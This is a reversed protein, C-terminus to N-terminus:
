QAGGSRHQAIWSELQPSGWEVRKYRGLALVPLRRNKPVRARAQAYTWSAPVCLRRALERLDIIEFTPADANM